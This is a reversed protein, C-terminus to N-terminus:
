VMRGVCLFLRVIPTARNCLTSPKLGDANHAASHKTGSNFGGAASSASSHDGRVFTEAAAPATFIGIADQLNSLTGITFLEDPTFDNL